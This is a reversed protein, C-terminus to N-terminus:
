AYAAIAASFAADIATKIATANAQLDKPAKAVLADEFASTNTNLTSLDSRILNTAGALPLNEFLTKKTIFTHLAEIITPQIAEVANLITTADAEDVAGTSQVDTTGTNIAAELTIVQTHIALADSLSESTFANIANNLKTIDASIASIDAEVKAVTRKSHPVALATLFSAIVVFATLHVM